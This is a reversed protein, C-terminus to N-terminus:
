PSLAGSEKRLRLIREVAKELGDTNAGVANFILDCFLMFRGSPTTTATEGVYEEFLFSLEWLFANRYQSGPAGGTYHKEMELLRNIPQELLSVFLILPILGEAPGNGTDSLAQLLPWLKTMWNEVDYRTEEETLQTLLRTPVPKGLLVAVGSGHHQQEEEGYAALLLLETQPDANMFEERLGNLHKSIRRLSQLVNRRSAGERKLGRQWKNLVRLALVVKLIKIWLYASKDDELAFVAEVEEIYKDLGKIFDFESAASM